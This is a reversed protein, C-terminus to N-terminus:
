DCGAGYLSDILMDALVCCDEFSLRGRVQVLCNWKQDMDMNPFPRGEADTVLKGFQTENRPTHDHFKQLFPTFGKGSWKSVTFTYTTGFLSFNVYTVHTTAAISIDVPMWGGFAECNVTTKYATSGIMNDQM